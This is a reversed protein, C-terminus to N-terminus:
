SRGRPTPGKLVGGSVRAGKRYVAPRVYALPHSIGTLSESHGVFLHGGPELREALRGVVLEQTPRDFYIMVNRCFIVPFPGLTPLPEILNLRRFEIMRRLDPKVQFQGQWMGTAKVFHRRRWEAPLSELRQHTYIGREATGLAKTSIDTALIKVQNYAAAGLEDVLTMALTYPEEGTSCAASWFELRPRQRLAPLLSQRLFDFHALERLFSTHNTALADILGILSEGTSDEEVHKLYERYSSLRLERVKKGLRAAVLEEKGVRLDLGFRQHALKCVRSFDAATLRDTPLTAPAASKKDWVM